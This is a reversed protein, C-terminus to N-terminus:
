NKIKGPVPAVWMGHINCKTLITYDKADPNPLTFEAIAQNYSFTFKKVKIQKEGQKLIIVETYHKPNKKGKFPITVKIKSSDSSDREVIPTHSDQQKKWVGPSDNTHFKIKDPYQKVDNNDETSNGMDTMNNCNFIMLILFLNLKKM